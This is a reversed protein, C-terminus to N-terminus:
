DEKPPEPLKTWYKPTCVMPAGFCCESWGDGKYYVGLECRPNEAAERNARDAAEEMTEGDHQFILDTSYIACWVVEGDTPLGDECRVWRPAAITPADKIENWVPCVECYALEVRKSLLAQRDILESM